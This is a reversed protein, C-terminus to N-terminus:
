TVEPPLTPNGTGIIECFQIARELSNYLDLWMWRRGRAERIRERLDAERLSCAKKKKSRKLERELELESLSLEEGAETTRVIIDLILAYYICFKGSPDTFNTPNNGVYRYLNADGGSFGIPDENLFTGTQPNYYRARYYYLGTEVDYERGTYTFPNKLYKDSNPTIENGGDDYITIRGFSDYVYRQVVEGSFNTVETVNGLRDRHYYFYQEPFSENRYSSIEREMRLPQDISDGYVYKARLKDESNFELLIHPGDYIYKTVVEEVNKQIRRGFPDYRYSISKSVEGESSDKETVGTLRNEYDWEYETIKNTTLNTKTILNGNRDYIYSFKKDNTLQNNNNFSSETFEGDRMLRNGSIDYTFSGAGTGTPKTASTLQNITDYGYNLSSNVATLSGRATKLGTTYDNLNYSYQFSSTEDPDSSTGYQLSLLQNLKGPVYSSLAQIQNPYRMGTIRQLSDYYFEIFNSDMGSNHGVKVLNNNKNYEYKIKKFFQTESDKLSIINDNRDYEYTLTVGPQSRSGRTSVRVIRDSGDYVYSLFSDSDQASLMNGKADYTYSESTGDPYSKGTLRNLVDYQYTIVNNNRDSRKILNGNKDYSFSEMRSLPDVRQILRDMTDYAFSTIHGRKDNVSLLNGKSDYSFDVKGSKADTQTLVRDLSDYTFTTAQGLGDTQTLVNGAMDYTMRAM